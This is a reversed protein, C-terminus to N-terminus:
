GEKGFKRISIEIAILIKLYSGKGKNYKIERQWGQQQIKDDKSPETMTDRSGNRIRKSHIERERWRQRQHKGRGRM